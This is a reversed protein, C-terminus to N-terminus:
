GDILEWLHNEAILNTPLPRHFRTDSEHFITIHASRREGPLLLLIHNQNTARTRFLSLNLGYAFIIELNMLILLNSESLLTGLLGNLAKNLARKVAQPRRAEDRVLRKLDDDQISTLLSRNMNTSSPFPNGDPLTAQGIDQVEFRELQSYTGLVGYLHRGSSFQLKERLETIVAPGTTKM